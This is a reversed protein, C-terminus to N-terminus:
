FLESLAPNEVERSILRATSGAETDGMRARYLYARALFDNMGTRAAVSYLDSIWREASPDRERSLLDCLADLAYARMWVYIDPFRVCVTGAQQFHRTAEDFAGARAEVLGLGHLAAGEWCPDGIQEAVSLAHELRIRAEAPAGGDLLEVEALMAQPWPLLGTWGCSTATAISRELSARADALEGRLM